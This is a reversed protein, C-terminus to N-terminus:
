QTGLRTGCPVRPNFDGEGVAKSLVDEDRGAHSAHISIPVIECTVSAPYTADRMPRTSQFLLDEDMMQALHLDRGAHSAHISIDFTDIWVDSGDTADRMPRTSQFEDPTKDM